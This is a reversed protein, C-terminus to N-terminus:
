PTSVQLGASSDDIPEQTVIASLPGGQLDDFPRPVEKGRAKVDRVSTAL